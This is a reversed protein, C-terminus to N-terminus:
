AEGLVRFARVPQIRNRVDIPGIEELRFADGLAARTTDDIVIEGPRAFTELRSAVNVSDGLATYEMRQSSGINGVVASGTSIGLCLRVRSGEVKGARDRMMLAARVANIRADASPVPAGFLAMVADGIYKDITGDHAFLIETMTTMHDRVFAALDSPTLGESIKTFSVIDAFLVTVTQERPALPDLGDTSVSLADLLKHDLYKGLYDRRHREREAIEALRARELALAAQHSVAVLLELHRRTFSRKSTIIDFSMFGMIQNRAWLPVCLTSQVNMAKLSGIEAGQEGAKRILVGARERRMRDLVTRSFRVPQQPVVGISALPLYTEDDQFLCLFARDAKVERNIIGLMTAAVASWEAVDIVAEGLTGILRLKQEDVSEKKKQQLQQSDNLLLSERICGDEDYLGPPIAPVSTVISGSNLFESESDDAISTDDLLFETRGIRFKSGATLRASKIRKGAFFTGNASGLDEVLWGQKDKTLCAHRKSVTPEEIRITNGELRGITVPGEDLEVKQQEEPFFIWLTAM